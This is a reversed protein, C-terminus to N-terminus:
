KKPTDGQYFIHLGEILKDFQRDFFKDDRWQSFDLINYDMIQRRLVMPWDCDKWTDDLAIPCLVDRKLEKELERASAAEHEVWDSNISHESLILVVTPNLRMARDIQRELRGATADHLDRWFRVGNSTLHKDMQDVFPADHHSYSIFLNNIQIPRTARLDTIRYAITVIESNRLNPNALKAYEIESDSLGCGRLFVEAIMGKSKRLTQLDITSPALHKV